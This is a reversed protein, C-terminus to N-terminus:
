KALFKKVEQIVQPPQGILERAMAQLEDGWTPSVIWDQKAAEGSLESDNMTKVFADRLIKVRDEPIGPAGVYPHGLEDSALLVAVLRRQTEPTRHKDMLEWITPVDPLRSDRKIGAQILPRVFGTKAWTRSPESIFFSGVTGAWCHVEGREIAVNVDTAGQYGPVLNFRLGVADDLLMPFLRALTRIGTAGCRPPEPAKRIDEITRYPTDARMYLLRERREPQGIWSFKAWDYQVEKQGLLQEIYLTPTFTAITLGDPKAVNYVYNAATMSGAGPMNQVMVQPNGPIHRSIHQAIARAWLDFGGGPTFGVVIRVTKGKYFLEQQAQLTPSIALDVAICPFLFFVVGILRNKKV